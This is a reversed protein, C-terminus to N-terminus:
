VVTVMACTVFKRAYWTKNCKMKNYKASVTYKRLPTTQTKKCISPKHSHQMLWTLRCWKGVTQKVIHKQTVNQCNQLIEYTKM